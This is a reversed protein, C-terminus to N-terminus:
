ARCSPCCLGKSSYLLDPLPTERGSIYALIISDYFPQLQVKFGGFGWGGAKPLAAVWQIFSDLAGDLIARLAKLCPVGVHKEPLRSRQCCREESYAQRPSELHFLLRINEVHLQRRDWGFMSCVLKYQILRQNFYHKKKGREEKKYILFYKFEQADVLTSYISDQIPVSWINNNLSFTYKLVQSLM